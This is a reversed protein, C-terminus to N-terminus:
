TSCGDRHTGSWLTRASGACYGRDLREIVLWGRVPEQEPHVRGWRDVNAHCDQEIPQFDPGSCDRFSVRVAEHRREYLTKALDRLYDDM